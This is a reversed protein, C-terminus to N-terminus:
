PVLATPAAETAVLIPAIPLSHSAEHFNKLDLAYDWVQDLAGALFEMAGVKFELVAVVPGVLVVADIRRGMRPISFELFLDGRLGNLQAQLVTIEAMWADRETAKVSGSAHALQGLIAHPSAACFADISGGYWARSAAGITGEM